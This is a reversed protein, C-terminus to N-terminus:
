ELSSGVCVTLTCLRVVFKEKLLGMYMRPLGIKCHPDILRCISICMCESMMMDIPLRTQQPYELFSILM